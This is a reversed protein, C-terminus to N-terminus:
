RDNLRSQDPPRWVNRGDPGTQNFPSVRGFASGDSPGVHFQLGGTGPQPTTKGKAADELRDAPDVYSASGDPNSLTNMTFAHAVPAAVVLATAVVTLRLRMLQRHDLMMVTEWTGGPVWVGLVFSGGDRDFTL